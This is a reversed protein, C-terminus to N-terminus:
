NDCIIWSRIENCTFWNVEPPIDGSAAAMHSRAGLSSIACSEM